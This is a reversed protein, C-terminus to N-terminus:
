ACRLLTDFVPSPDGTGNSDGEVEGVGDGPGETLHSRSKPQLPARNCDQLSAVCTDM